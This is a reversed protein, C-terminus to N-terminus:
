DPRYERIIIEYNGLGKQDHSTAIVRYVGDVKPMFWIRSNHNKKARNIDEKESLTKKKEDVLRLYTDFEKSRMEIVVAKGGSLKVEHAAATKGDDLKGELKTEEKKRTADFLEVLR